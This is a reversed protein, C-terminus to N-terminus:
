KRKRAEIAKLAWKRLEERDELVEEPVEYYPMTRDKDKYPRFPGKGHREYDPRNRDDAKLYLTAEAILGFMAEDKFLGAGGFMKKGRLGEIGSLQDMVLDMFSQNMAM